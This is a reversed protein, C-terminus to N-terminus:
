WPAVPEEVPGPGTRSPPKATGSSRGPGADFDYLFCGDYLDVSIWGAAAIAVHADLIADLARLV